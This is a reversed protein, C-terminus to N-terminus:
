RSANGSFYAPRMAQVVRHIGAERALLALNVISEYAV